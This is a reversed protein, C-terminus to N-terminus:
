GGSKIGTSRNSRAQHSRQGPGQEKSPKVYCSCLFICKNFPVGEGRDRLILDATSISQSGLYGSESALLLRLWEARSVRHTLYTVM